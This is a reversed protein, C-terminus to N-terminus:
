ASVLPVARQSKKKTCDETEELNMREIFGRLRTAVVKGVRPFFARASRTRSASNSGWLRRTAKNSTGHQTAAGNYTASRCSPWRESVGQMCLLAYGFRRHRDEIASWVNRITGTACGIMTLEQTIAKLTMMQLISETEGRAIAWTIVSKWNSQYGERTRHALHAPM